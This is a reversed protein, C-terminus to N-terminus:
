LLPYYHYHLPLHLLQQANVQLVTVRVSHEVSHLECHVSGCCHTVRHVSCVKNCSCHLSMCMANCHHPVAAQTPVSFVQGDCM